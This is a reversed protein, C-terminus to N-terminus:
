ARYHTQLKFRLLGVEKKSWRAVHRSLRGPFNCRFLADSVHVIEGFDAANFSEDDGDGPL